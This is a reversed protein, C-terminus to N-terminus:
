LKVKSVAEKMIEQTFIENFKKTIQADFDIGMEKHFDRFKKWNQYGEIPIGMYSTNTQDMFEIDFEDKSGMVGAVVTTKLEGVTITEEFNLMFSKATLKM